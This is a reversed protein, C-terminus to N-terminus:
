TPPRASQHCQGDAHRHQRHGGRSHGRTHPRRPQGRLDRRPCAGIESPASTPFGTTTGHLTRLLREECLEFNLHVPRKRDRSRIRRSVWNFLKM